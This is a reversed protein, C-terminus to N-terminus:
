FSDASYDLYTQPIDSSFWLQSLLVATLRLATCTSGSWVSDLEIINFLTNSTMSQQWCWLSQTWFCACCSEFSLVIILLIVFNSCYSNSCLHKALAFLGHSQRTSHRRRFLESHLQACEIESLADNPQRSWPRSLTHGTSYIGVHLFEVLVGTIQVPTYGWM